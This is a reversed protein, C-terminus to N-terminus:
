KGSITAGTVRIWPLLSAGSDVREKSIQVINMLMEALNGSVMSEGIPHKIEGNEILYSNKAIGSFDGSTSPQGGSFRALLIGKETGKVMDEYPTDGADIVWAGGASRAREGGTKKSGYLSLLFSELVGRNVFTMDEAKYGDPTVFYGAAIEKSTPRSHVTLLPSAVPKGLKDKYISVGSILPGDSIAGLLFYLLDGLSDPTFIVDGVFKGKVPFTEIQEGSQRLLTDLTSCEILPRELDKTAFGTYNFSSTKDGERSSFIMTCSYLGRTTVFEVGNSNVFASETRTFDLYAQRLVARKHRKAIDSLLERLRMHMMDLDPAMPGSQFVEPVQGQAIDNAEDPQSADAMQLVEGSMASLDQEDTKNGVSTGKRGDKIAMMAVNTDYTTRLLSFEAADVNMEHKESQSVSCQAKEAGAELLRALGLKAIDKPQAM